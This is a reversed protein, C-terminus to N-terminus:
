IFLIYDGKNLLTSRWDYVKEGELQGWNEGFVFGGIEKRIDM